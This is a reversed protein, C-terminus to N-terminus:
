DWNPEFFEDGDEDATSFEERPAAKPKSRGQSPRSKEYSAEEEPSMKRQNKEITVKAWRLSAAVDDATIELKSRKNGEADEWSHQTMRGVVTVRAGKPLCLINEGLEEWAVVDFYSVATEPERGDRYTITRNEAISFRALFKGTSLESGEPQRTINGTVTITSM